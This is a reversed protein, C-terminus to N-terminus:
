KEPCVRCAHGMDAESLASSVKALLRASHVIREMAMEVIVDEINGPRNVAYGTSYEISTRDPQGDPIYIRKVGDLTM